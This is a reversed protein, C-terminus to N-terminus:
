LFAVMIVSKGAEYGLEAFARLNSFSIFKTQILMILHFDQFHIAVRCLRNLNSHEVCFIFFFLSMEAYFTQIIYCLSDTSASESKGKVARLKASRDILIYGSSMDNSKVGMVNLLM